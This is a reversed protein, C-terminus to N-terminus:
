VDDDPHPVFVPVDYDQLTQWHHQVDSEFLCRTIGEVLKPVASNMANISCGSPGLSMTAGITFDHIDALWPATGAEKELFEGDPGLYSYRGLREDAEEPPPTYRDAWTAIRDAFAALEPRKAFDIDVGTGAIIFDATFPGNATAIALRGEKVAVGSWGAGTHIRFNPHLRMRDYTGQPISERLGLIYAMFRWRWEDPLDRLHRVFGPFTLWRFPQIRQMQERRVFLHVSDAGAELACAANDAASAGAGLVAVTKGKLATFDIEDAAHARYEVPLAEVFDPMWWRGTGDQGTALVIKRAYVVEEGAPTALTAKLGYDPAPEIGTLAVENRVPLNLVQRYWLLYDNWDDKDILDLAEWHAEGYAAQHWAIYTLSPVGLDPGTYDKPSRLTHMRAYTVWVGEEGYSAKDIVQINTVRQRILEFATVLGGQGGGAILVDLMPRGDPGPRPPMWDTAPHRTLWLDRRVQEELRALGELSPAPRQITDPM